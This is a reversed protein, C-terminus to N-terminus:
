SPPSISPFPSAKAVVLTKHEYSLYGRVFGRSILRCIWLCMADMDHGSTEAVIEEMRSKKAPPPSCDDAAAGEDQQGDEVAPADVAPVDMVLRSADLILQVSIKTNDAGPIAGVLAHVRQVLYLYCLIRAQQLLMYVGRKRFLSANRDLARCFSQPNGERIAEIIPRFLQKSVPDVDLFAAPPEHGCVIGTVIRYFHIRLKNERQPVSCMSLPPTLRYATSFSAAAEAFKKEYLKMRGQYYRFKVVEAIMHAAPRLVSKTVDGTTESVQESHEVSQLLARCQHTNNHQFLMIILGNVVALAGRRRSFDQVVGNDSSQLYILLKRWSRVIQTLAEDNVATGATQSAKQIMHVLTMLPVTDWGPTEASSSLQQKSLKATRYHSRDQMHVQQLAEFAHLLGRVLKNSAQVMSAQAFSESGSATPSQASQQLADDDTPPPTRLSQRYLANSAVVRVVVEVYLKNDAESHEPGDRLKRLEGMVAKRTGDIVTDLLKASADEQQEATNSNSSSTTALLQELFRPEFVKLDSAENIADALKAGIKKNIANAANAAWSQSVIPQEM